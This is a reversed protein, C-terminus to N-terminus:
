AVPERIIHRIYFYNFLLSHLFLNANRERLKIALSTGTPYSGLYLNYLNSDHLTNVCNVPLTFIFIVQYKRYFATFILPIIDVCFNSFFM